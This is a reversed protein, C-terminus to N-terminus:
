MNEGLINVRVYAIAQELNIDGFLLGFIAAGLSNMLDPCCATVFDETELPAAEYFAYNIPLALNIDCIDDETMYIRPAYLIHPKYLTGGKGDVAMPWVMANIYNLLRMLEPIYESEECWEAGAMSYYVRVEMSDPLFWICSELKNEPCFEYGNYEMRYRAVGDETDEHFKIFHSKLYRAFRAKAEEQTM